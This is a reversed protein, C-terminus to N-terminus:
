YIEQAPHLGIVRIIMSGRDSWETIDLRLQQNNAQRRTQMAGIGSTSRKSTIVRTYQEILREV